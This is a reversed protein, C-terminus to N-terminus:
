EHRLARVPDMRAARLAPLLACLVAFFQTCVFVAVVFWAHIDVPIETFTFIDTRFMRLGTAWELADNIGNIYRAVLVGTLCGLTSSLVSMILGCGVFISLLGRGAAGMSTLVGIDKTKDSVMITITAFVNFCAVIVFFFLLIGMMGRENEVAGIFNAYRDMWTEVKVRLGAGLMAKELRWRLEKLEVGKEAAICVESLGHKSETFQVADELRMYVTKEDTLQHGSRVSGAVLFRQSLPKLDDVVIKEPLTVLTVVSGIHLDHFRLLVDGLLVAPLDANLYESPIRSRDVHFPRDLNLPRIGYVPDRRVCERFGTPDDKADPDVGVVQVFSRELLKRNGRLYATEPGSRILAPRLLRPSVGTVGSVTRAVGEIQEFTPCAGAPADEQQLDPTLILDSTTSLLAEETLRLFGSMISITAILAMVSLWIGVM